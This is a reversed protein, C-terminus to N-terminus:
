STGKLWRGLRGLARVDEPRFGYRVVLTMTIFFGLWAATMEALNGAPRALDELWAMLATSALAISFPKILSKQYPQLNYIFYGELLSLLSTVNIAVAAAIAAGMAGYTPALLYQLTVLTVVGVLGNFLPLFRHGLMEILSCAPGMLAEAMRGLALILIVGAAAAFEPAFALLLEHRILLLLAGLPVILCCILRTSFAYMEQLADHDQAAKKATAFPAIVYEFSQRVVILVSAIRRATGYLGAAEAGQVGPLIQNLLLVPVESHLDKIVYAPMVASSYSLMKRTLAWDFPARLVIRYDYFQASLRLALMTAVTVSFLQAYFLGTSHFGAYYLAIGAILRLGQEYFIRVRIEPGFRRQARVSATLVELATWFPLVWAYVRIIGVLHVADAEDANVYGALEPAFISILLSLSTSILLTITLASKVISAARDPCDNEPVFRQLAPPMGFETFRTGIRVVAWLTFFIGMTAAGYLWGFVALSVIDILAGLRGLFAKGASKAVRANDTSEGGSGGPGPAAPTAPNTPPINNEDTM